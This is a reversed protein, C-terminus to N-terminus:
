NDDFYKIKSNKLLANLWDSFRIETKKRSLEIKVKEREADNTIDAEQFDYVKVLHWGLDTKFPGILTQSPYVSLKNRFEPILDNFNIWQLNKPDLIFQDDSYLKVAESFVLGDIILNKYNNLKKELDEDTTIANKKLLIQQFKYQRILIMEKQSSNRISEIKILHYGNSSEIVDSIDGNKAKTIFDTFITPLTQLTNWGLDGKELANPGESFEYAVSGFDEMKIKKLVKKLKEEKDPNTKKILIHLIKYETAIDIQKKKLFADIEYDSVNVFPMIERDKIKQVSLQYAIDEKFEIINSGDNLLEQELVDISINNNKLINSIVLDLEEQKPKLGILEVYQQILKKEILEDLLQKRIKSVESEPLNSQGIKKLIKKLEKDFESQTVVDREVSVIIKDLLKYDNSKIHVSFCLLVIIVLLYLKKKRM